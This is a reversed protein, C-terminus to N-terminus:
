DIAARDPFPGRFPDGVIRGQADATDTVVGLTIVADYSKDSATMFQALRTARGILLPLVGTAAPDLTGPHGIRSERLARGMRAVVDHSTPGAPKDIVLLGDMSRPKLRRSSCRRCPTSRGPSRVARRTRTGAAASSRPSRASTSTARRACASAT